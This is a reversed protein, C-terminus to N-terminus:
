IIREQGFYRPMDGMGPGPYNKEYPHSPAMSRYYNRAKSQEPRQKPKIRSQVKKDKNKSNNKKSKKVKDGKGARKWFKKLILALMTAIRKHLSEAPSSKRNKRKKNSKAISAMFYRYVRNLKRFSLQSCSKKSCKKKKLIIAIIKLIAKIQRSVTVPVLSCSNIKLFLDRLLKVLHVKGLKRFFKRKKGSSKVRLKKLRKLGSKIKKIRWMMRSVLKKKELQPCIKDAKKSLSRHHIKIGLGKLFHAIFKASHSATKNSKKKDKKPIVTETSFNL